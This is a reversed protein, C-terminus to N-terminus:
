TSVALRHLRKLNYSTCVLNWEGSVKEVGRLLFQRFGMAHKIIGFVPEITSKRKSYLQKGEKTKMRNKMQEVLSINEPQDLTPEQKKLQEILFTNHEDRKPSIYPLIAFDSCAQVNKESFYGSDALMKEPNGLQEPLKAIAELAPILEKKDNTHQTLHNEIILMTDIDVAAQANYAQVFGGGSKPMIRSEADTLNVQDTESPGPEPFKPPKGKPKKGNDEQDQRNKIKRDYEKKEEEYRAKSRSEIEAKAQAIKGLREERRKLEEPINLEPEKENKDAVVALEMLKKIEEKLQLEIKNAYEWSLAKHKSANANIKSGDLSITGLKLIKMEHAILLVQKFVESIETLHNKRFNAITDHDPHLDGCIYRIPILEYTAKELKRSSFIGTSYGYFLLGLILSPHYPNSGAGRYKEEFIRLDLQGMIDVIFRALHGEEVWEDIRAPFM